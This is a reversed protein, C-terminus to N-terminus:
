IGYRFFSSFFQSSTNGKLCTLSIDANRQMNLLHKKNHDRKIRKEQFKKDKLYKSTTKACVIWFGLSKYILNYVSILEVIIWVYHYNIKGKGFSVLTRM